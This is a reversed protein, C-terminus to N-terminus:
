RAARSSHSQSMALFSMSQPGSLECCKCSRYWSLLAKEMEKAKGRASHEQDQHEEGQDCM